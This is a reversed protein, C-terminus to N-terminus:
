VTCRGHTPPIQATSSSRKSLLLIVARWPVTWLSGANGTWRPRREEEGAWDSGDQFPALDPDAGNKLLFLTVERNDLCRNLAVGFHGNNSPIQQNPHYGHQVCLEFLSLSHNSCAGEIMSGDLTAGGEDLLYRVVNIQNKRAACALGDQVGVQLLVERKESVWRKVVELSGEECVTFFLRVEANPYNDPYTTDLWESRKPLPPPLPDLNLDDFYGELEQRLPARRLEEFEENRTTIENFLEQDAQHWLGASWRQGLDQLRAEDGNDHQSPTESYKKFAEASYYFYPAKGGRTQLHRSINGRPM